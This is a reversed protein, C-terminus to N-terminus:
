PASPRSRLRDLRCGYQQRLAFCRTRDAPRNAATVQHRLDSGQPDQRGDFRRRVAPRARGGHATKEHPQRAVPPTYTFTLIAKELDGAPGKTEREERDLEWGQSLFFDLFEEPGCSAGPLTDRLYIIDPFVQGTDSGSSQVAGSKRDEAASLSLEFVEACTRPEPPDLAEAAAGLPFSLGLAAAVGLSLIGIRWRPQAPPLAAFMSRRRGHSDRFHPVAKGFARAESSM